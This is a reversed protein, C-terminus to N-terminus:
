KPEESDHIEVLGGSYWDTPNESSRISERHVVPLLAQSFGLPVM